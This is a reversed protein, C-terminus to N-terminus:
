MRASYCIKKKFYDGECLCGSSKRKEQLLLRLSNRSHIYVGVVHVRLQEFSTLVPYM